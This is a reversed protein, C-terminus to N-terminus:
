KNTCSLNLIMGDFGGRNNRNDFRGGGRGGGRGGRGGGRGDKDRPPAVNIRLQRDVFLAEDFELAEILSERDEFEVYCFGLHAFYILQNFLKTHAIIIPTFLPLYHSHWESLVTYLVELDSVQM